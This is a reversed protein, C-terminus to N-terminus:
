KTQKLEGDVFEWRRIVKDEEIKDELDLVRQRLRSNEDALESIVKAAKFAGIFDSNQLTEILVDLDVHDLANM